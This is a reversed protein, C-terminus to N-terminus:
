RAGRGGLRDLGLRRGLGWVLLTVVGNLTIGVLTIAAEPQGVIRALSGLLLDLGPWVNMWPGGREMWFRAGYLAYSVDWNPFMLRGALECVVAWSGLLWPDWRPSPWHWEM